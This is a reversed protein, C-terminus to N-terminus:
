KELWNRSLTRKGAVPRIGPAVDVAGVLDPGPQEQKRRHERQAEVEGIRHRSAAGTASRGIRAAGEDAEGVVGLHEALVFNQSATVCCCGTAKSRAPRRRRGEPQQGRLQGVPDQPLMALDSIKM